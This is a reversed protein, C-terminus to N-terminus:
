IGSFLSFKFDNSKTLLLCKNHYFGLCMVAIM